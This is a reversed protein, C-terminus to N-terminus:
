EAPTAIGAAIMTRRLRADNKYVHIIWAQRGADGGGMIAFLADAERLVVCKRGSYTFGASAIDTGLLGIGASQTCGVSTLGPAQGPATSNYTSNNSNRTTQRQGQNQGQSTSVSASGGDGGHNNVWANAGTAMMATVAIVSIMKEM